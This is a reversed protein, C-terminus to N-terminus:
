IFLLFTEDGSISIQTQGQDSKLLLLNVEYLTITVNSDNTWMGTIIGKDSVAGACGPDLNHNRGPM